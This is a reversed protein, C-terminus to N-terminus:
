LAEIPFGLKQGYLPFIDLNLLYLHPTGRWSKLFRLHHLQPLLQRLNVDFLKKSSGPCPHHSKTETSGAVTLSRYWSSLSSGLLRERSSSSPKSLGPESSGIEYCLTAPVFKPPPRQAQLFQSSAAEKWLREDSYNQGGDVHIQGTELQLREKDKVPNYRSYITFSTTAM